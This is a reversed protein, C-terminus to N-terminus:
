VRVQSDGTALVHSRSTSIQEEQKSKNNSKKSSKKAEKTIM